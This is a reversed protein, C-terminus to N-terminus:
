ECQGRTWLLIGHKLADCENEYARGDCGCVPKRKRSCLKALNIGRKLDLCLSSSPKGTPAPTPSRTPRCEGNTWSVVGEREAFCQNSYTRGNCGCIPEYVLPCIRKLDVLCPDICLTPRTPSSSPPGPSPLLSCEGSAILSHGLLSLLLWLPLGLRALAPSLLM